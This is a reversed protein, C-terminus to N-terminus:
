LALRVCNLQPHTVALENTEASINLIRDAGLLVFVLGDPPAIQGARILRTIEELLGRVENQAGVPVAFAQEAGGARVTLTAPGDPWGTLATPASVRVSGLLGIDALIQDATLSSWPQSQRSAPLDLALRWGRITWCDASATPDFGVEVAFEGEVATPRREDATSAAGVASEPIFGVLPAAIGLARRARETNAVIRYGVTAQGLLGRVKEQIAYGGGVPVPQLEVPAAQPQLYAAAIASAVRM